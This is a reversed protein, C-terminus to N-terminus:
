ENAKLQGNLLEFRTILLDLKGQEKKMSKPKLYLWNFAIWLIIIGYTVSAWFLTMRLTYEVMYLCIGASLFLYYINMMTTQLFRQKEKFLVLRQLYQRSDLDYNVELLLPITKNYAFLYLVMALVSLIIGITTTMMRPKYYYWVYIIFASTFILVANTLILRRLNSRKFMKTKEFLEKTDPIMSHQQSWLEKLDISHNM